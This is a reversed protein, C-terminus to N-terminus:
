GRLIQDLQFGEVDTRVQLWLPLHDSMEYTLDDKKADVGPYLKKWDGCYFDLVGGTKSFLEPYNLHVLIQDYRKDKALNSGHASGRLAKPIQLGKSTIAKFLEDNEARTLELGFSGRPLATLLLRSNAEGTRKGRSGVVGHWRDAYDAMVM